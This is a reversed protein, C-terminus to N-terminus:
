MPALARPPVIVYVIGGSGGLWVRAFQDRRYVIRIHGPLGYPDNVIVDGSATFGRVVLLHGETQRYPSGALEGPAVKISAVLPIGRTIYEEAADLGSLREVWGALGHESAYAVNFPWNGCGQYAPDYTGEVVKRLAISWQPHHLRQAWYDMVMAISTPSCWADGGGALADPSEDVRQTREPVELDVGWAPHRGDVLGAEAGAATGGSGQAGSQVAGPAGTQTGTTVAVLTLEPQEREPGAHLRVDVQWADAPHTLLLTDTAVRGDADAQGAVSHRHAGDSASWEGMAYWGTWRSGHRARLFTEIWSGGPTAGNWSVVATTFGGPVEHVPSRYDTRVPTSLRLVTLSVALAASASLHEV